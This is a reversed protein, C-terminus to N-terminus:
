SLSEYFQLAAAVAAEALQEDPVNVNSWSSKINLAIYAGVTASFMIRNKEKKTICTSSENKKQECVEKNTESM